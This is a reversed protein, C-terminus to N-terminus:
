SVDSSLAPLATPHHLYARIVHVPLTEIHDAPLALGSDEFAPAPAERLLTNVPPRVGPDPALDSWRLRRRRALPHHRGTVLSVGEEMLIKEGLGQASGGEPLRGVIFDLNGLWLEPLFAEVTGERVLVSIGPQRTKLAALARPLL